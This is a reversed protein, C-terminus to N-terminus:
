GLGALDLRVDHGARDDQDGPKAPARREDVVLRRQDDDADPMSSTPTPTPMVMCFRTSATCFVTGSRSMPAALEDTANKRESPPVIPTETSPATSAWRTVSWIVWSRAAAPTGPRRDAAAGAREVEVASGSATCCMTRAAYPSAVPCMKRIEAAM